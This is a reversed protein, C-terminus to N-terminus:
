NLFIDNTTYYYYENDTLSGGIMYDGDVKDLNAPLIKSEGLEINTIVELSSFDLNSIYLLNNISHVLNNGNYWMSLLSFQGLVPSPLILDILTETIVGSSDIHQWYWEESIYNYYSNYIEDNLVIANVGASSKTEDTPTTIAFNALLEAQTIEGSVDVNKSFTETLNSYTIFDQTKYIFQKYVYGSGGSDKRMSIGFYNWQNVGYHIPVSPYHRVLTTGYDADTVLKESWTTFDDIDSVLVVQSNNPTLTVGTSRTLIVMRNDTTIRCANYGFDGTVTHLLTFGDAISDASNSKLIQMDEGHGNVVIVYIFDNYILVAPRPHVLVDPNTLTTVLEYELVGNKWKLIYPSNNTTADLRGTLYTGGNYFLSKPTALTGYRGAEDSGTITVTNLDSIFTSNSNQSIIKHIM